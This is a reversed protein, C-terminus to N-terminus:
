PFLGGFDASPGTRMCAELLLEKGTTTIVEEKHFDILDALTAHRNQDVGLFSYYDGSADILFHKFGSATRYSLTYGWIRESVRVLFSGEASNMLLRESDERSIIGHFWPAITNGNREHGAQKPKQEETFWLIVLERSSPRPTRLWAPSDLLPQTTTTSHRRSQRRRHLPPEARQIGPRPKVENSSVPCASPEIFTSHRRHSQKQFHGSLGAVHGKEIARLSQRKYEDRAWRAKRTMEEDAAKSRRLQEEWEKDRQENKKQEHELSMYLEKARKEEARRIEEEERQREEEEQKKLKERIVEEEQKAAKRDEAEEKWKGAVLRAKEKAIADRFKQKIEEEKKRWMEQAELQAQRRAREEMLEKVIVEYPKDGPADGMVWVWVEGDKGQLWQVGKRNEDRREPSDWSGEKSECETWRRVQEQRIKYFLIQRQEENLEALLEPDVFMDRLIQQMM